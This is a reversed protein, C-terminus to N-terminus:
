FVKKRMATIEPNSMFLRWLLGTRHNEIMVVMPAQNLGMWLDDVWNQDISFADRFGYEGWLFKGYNRYYNKMAALSAAPLYPMSAIAGTPTLKSKDGEQRPEDPSYAWPGDSATLGWGEEGYGARKLPNEQCYRLNITAIARNNEFYDTFKDRLGRPDMGLFPYHTFFIPGGTFGGVELRIGHYVNGNTYMRGDSSGRYEQAEKAQSAWGSYYMSPPVPHTPSAIALLYTIMTENWGILPHHIKWAKDPSWHWLLYPHDPEKRYWSWEVSEWLRTIRERVAREAPDSETFYQRAALLGQMLFSTEVLDGGDDDPGFFLQPHGSLGQYFHPMAGHFRDAKELFALIKEMRLVFQKRPIFGREAGVIMAMIGFGSAGVAVMHPNGPVCELAMGSNEEGGDWYYRFCAEQVMDLLEEDSMSRTQANVTTSHGSRSGDYGILQIRYHLTRKDDGVYDTYRSLWRRRFGISEYHIGDASREVLVGRVGPDRVCRWELDIHRDFGKASLLEPLDTPVLLPDSAPRLDVESLFMQHEVGDAHGQQWIVGAVEEAVKV